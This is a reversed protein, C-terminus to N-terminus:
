IVTEHTENENVRESWALWDSVISKFQKAYWVYSTHVFVSVLSGIAVGEKIANALNGYSFPAEQTKPRLMYCFGGMAAEIAMYEATPWGGRSAATGEYIVADIAGLIPEEYTLEGATWYAKGSYKIAGGIFGCVASNKGGYWNDNCTKRISYGVISSVGCLPVATWSTMGLGWLMGCLPLDILAADTVADPFTKVFSEMVTRNDAIIVDSNEPAEEKPEEIIHQTSLNQTKTVDVPCTLVAKSEQANSEALIVDSAQQAHPTLNDHSHLSADPEDGETEVKSEKEPKDGAQM